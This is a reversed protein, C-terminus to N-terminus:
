NAKSAKAPRKAPGPATAVMAAALVAVAAAFALAAPQRVAAWPWGAVAPLLFPAVVLGIIGAGASRAASADKCTCVSASLMMFMAAVHAEYLREAPFHPEKGSARGYAAAAFSEPARYVWVSLGFFVYALANSARKFAGGAPRPVAKGATALMVVSLLLLVGPGVTALAPFRGPFAGYLVTHIQTAVVVCLGAVVSLASRSDRVTCLVAGAAIDLGGSLVGLEREAGRHDLGFGATARLVEEPFLLKALGAVTFVTSLLKAALLGRM